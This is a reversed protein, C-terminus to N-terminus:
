GRNRWRKLLSTSDEEGPSSSSPQLCHLKQTGLVIRTCHWIGFFFINIGARAPTAWHISRPGTFWLIVPQIGLWPVHRPQPGPGWYHPRLLCGCVSTERGRKRGRKRERFIFLIKLFINIGNDGEASDIQWYLFVLFVFCFILVVTTTLNGGLKYGAKAM